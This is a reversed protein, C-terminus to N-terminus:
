MRSVSGVHQDMWQPRMITSHRGMTRIPMPVRKAGASKATTVTHKEFALCSIAFPLNCHSHLTSLGLSPSARDSLILTKLILRGRGRKHSKSVMESM